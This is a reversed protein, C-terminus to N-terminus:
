AAQAGLGDPAVEHADGPRGHPEGADLRGLELLRAAGAGPAVAAPRSRLRGKTLEDVAARKGARHAAGVAGTSREGGARASPEVDIGLQHALAMCEGTRSEESAIGAELALRAVGLEADPSGAIHLPGGLEAGLHPVFGLAARRVAARDLAQDRALAANVHQGPRGVIVAAAHLLHAALAPKAGLALGLGGAELRGHSPSGGAPAVEASGLVRSKGRAVPDSRALERVVGGEGGRRITAM